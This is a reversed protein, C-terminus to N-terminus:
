GYLELLMGELTLGPGFAFSLVSDQDPHEQGKSIKQDYLHKLVFLVTPSSMNGHQRLIHHASENKEKPIELAAEIVQLIRRGGPHIAYHQIDNQSLGISKLLRATLTVIGRQIIDPVESSLRMEFGHDRIHWAMTSKGELALDSYFSKIQFMPSGSTGELLVAAAGDSFLTGSLMSDEDLGNQLHISCLEVDVVLVKSNPHNAVINDAAKLANFAAYCGMFNICTRQVDTRLGLREVLDIDLGPAYMGTCSVTILHSIESPAIGELCGSAAEYALKVAEREYLKMRDGATPFPELRDNKPFFEFAEPDDLGFDPIVSHRQSIGSARYLVQLAQSEQDNMPLHRQMFNCIQKQSLLHPPLATYINSIYTPM